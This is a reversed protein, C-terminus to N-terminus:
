EGLIIVQRKRIARSVAASDIIRNAFGSTAATVNGQGQNCAISYTFWMVINADDIERKRGLSVSYRSQSGGFIRAELKRSTGDLKILNAVLSVHGNGVPLSDCRGEIFVSDNYNVVVSDRLVPQWVKEVLTKYSDSKEAEFCGSWVSLLLSVLPMGQSM